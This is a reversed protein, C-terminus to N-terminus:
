RLYKAKNLVHEDHTRSYIIDRTGTPTLFFNYDNYIPYIAAEIALIGPNTIPGPPLGRHLYTNYPSEVRTDAISYIEKNVGLIYALTACSQLAQGSRIRQWFIGSIMKAHYNDSSIYNIPAEKEILAAMTLIEYISKEQNVIEDRLEQNLKRDFNELMRIVLDEPKADTFIRYTDPYLYGQLDAEKPKDALFSFRALLDIEHNEIKTARIFEDKEFIGESELYNAMEMINWGELLKVTHEPRPEPEPLPNDRGALRKLCVRFSSHESDVRSQCTIVQPIIIIALIFAIIIYIFNKM